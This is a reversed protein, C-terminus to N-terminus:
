CTKEPLFTLEEKGDREGWGSRGGGWVLVGRGM